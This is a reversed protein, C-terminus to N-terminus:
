LSVGEAMEIPVHVTRQKGGINIVRQEVAVFSTYQSMIGYELALDTVKTQGELSETRVENGPCLGARAQRCEEQGYLQSPNVARNTERSRSTSTQTWPAGAMHRDANLKGQGAHRVPRLARDAERQFREPIQGPLIESVDVAGEFKAAFTSWSRAKRGKSSDIWRM